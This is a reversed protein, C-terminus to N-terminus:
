ACGKVVAMIAAAVAAGVGLLGATWGIGELKGRIVSVDSELRDVKSDLRDLTRLVLAKFDNDNEPM